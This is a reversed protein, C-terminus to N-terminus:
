EKGSLFIRLDRRIREMLRPLVNGSAHFAVPLPFFIRHFLRVRRLELAEFTVFPRILRSMARQRRTSKIPAYRNINKADNLMRKEASLHGLPRLHVVPFRTHALGAGHTRSGSEGGNISLRSAQLRNVQRAMPKAAFFVLTSGSTWRLIECCETCSKSRTERL